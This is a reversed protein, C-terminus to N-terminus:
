LFARHGRTSAGAQAAWRLMREYIGAALDPSLRGVSRAIDLQKLRIMLGASENFVAPGNGGAATPAASQMGFDDDFMDEDLSAGAGRGPRCDWTSSVFLDELSPLLSNALAAGLDEATCGEKLLELAGVLTELCCRVEPALATPEGAERRLASACARLCQGLSGRLDRDGASTDGSGKRADRVAAMALAALATVALGQLLMPTLPRRRRKGLLFLSLGCARPRIEVDIVQLHSASDVFKRGNVHIVAKLAGALEAIARDQLSALLATPHPAHDGQPTATPLM